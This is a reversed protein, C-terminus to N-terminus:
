PIAPEASEAALRLTGSGLKQRSRVDEIILRVGFVSRGALSGIREDVEVEALWDRDRSESMDISLVHGRDVRGLQDKGVLRIKLLHQGGLRDVVHVRRAACRHSHKALRVHGAVDTPLDRLEASLSVGADTSPVDPEERRVGRLRLRLAIGHRDSAIWATNRM